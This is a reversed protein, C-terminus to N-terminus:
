KKILRIEDKKNPVMCLFKFDEEGTNRYWHPAKEPIFVVDGTVVTFEEGNIAIRARGQVVYQEHEVTNTHEPMFGGPEITFLRMAFHPATEPGILVQKFTGEGATIEEKEITEIKTIYM